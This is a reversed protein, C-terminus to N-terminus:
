LMKWEKDQPVLFWVSCGNTGPIPKVQVDIEMSTVIGCNGYVIVM